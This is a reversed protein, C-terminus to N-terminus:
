FSITTSGSVIGSTVTVTDTFTNSLLTQPTTNSLPLSGSPTLSGNDLYTNAAGVSAILQEAGQTRGYIKYGTAGIVTLWNINVGGTTTSPPVAALLISQESSALTEGTSLTASVRYYYTTGVTLTGTASSTFPANVPTSLQRNIQAPAVAYFTYAGFDDTTGSFSSSMILNTRDTSFNYNNTSPATFPAKNGFISVSIKNMPAGSSDRVIVQMQQVSPDASSPVGITTVTITSGDPAQDGCSQLLLLPSSLLFLILIPIIKGFIKM